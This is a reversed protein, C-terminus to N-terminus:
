SSKSMVLAAIRKELTGRTTCTVPTTGGGSAIATANVASRLISRGVVSTDIMTGIRITVEYSTAIDGTITSGCDIWRSLRQGAFSGHVHAFQTAIMREVADAGQLPVGFEAYTQILAPWARAPPVTITDSSLYQDRTLLMDFRGGPSELQVREQQFTPQSSGGSSACSALALLGAAIITLCPLKM